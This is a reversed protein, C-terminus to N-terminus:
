TTLVPHPRAYLKPSVGKGGLELWSIFKDVTEAKVDVETMTERRRIFACTTGEVHFPVDKNLVCLCM